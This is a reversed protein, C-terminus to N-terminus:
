LPHSLSQTVGTFLSIHCINSDHLSPFHTLLYLVDAVDLRERARERERERERERVREKARKSEARSRESKKEREREVEGERRRM